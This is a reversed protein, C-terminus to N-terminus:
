AWKGIIGLVADAARESSKGDDLHTGYAKIFERDFVDAPYRGTKVYENLKGVLERTSDATVARRRLLGMAHETFKIFRTLVFVPANTFAAQLLTTTPTDIVIAKAKCILDSIRVEGGIRKV